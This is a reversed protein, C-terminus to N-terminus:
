TPPLVPDARPGNSAANMTTGPPPRRCMATSREGSVGSSRSSHSRLPTRAHGGADLQQRWIADGLDMGPIVKGREDPIQKLTHVSVGEIM